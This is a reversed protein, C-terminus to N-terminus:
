KKNKEYLILLGKLLLADDYIITHRCLPTIFKALGGTAIVTAKSELEEEMRDIIGDLMAANGYMIGARMCEITNKGIVKSPIELSIFPLQATKGSLSDLSVRVGPLIVGGIYNGSKDVVSMTTATGMDIIILPAPYERIAAVADVIMDSGTAKPNDMIINLGTKMGSGVLFPAKGTIKKVASTLTSNLPPVVSSIIAGDIMGSSIDHIELINKITVAYELDTKRHDTTVREVFYTKKDDIGGVVINTNGMDIALIM